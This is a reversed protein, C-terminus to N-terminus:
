ASRGLVTDYIRALEEAQDQYRPLRDKFPNTYTELMDKRDLMAEIARQLPEPEDIIPILSGNVGEVIEEAQGGPATSIVWVDRSLAERVTLGYSERWQSPFLLIDIGDYFDDLEAQTYAPITKVTGRVLWSSVDISPFGLNLTNDVLILEWDDRATKELAQRILSYGKVDVAGGVFGFRLKSGPDRKRRPRSPWTFGNKNIAIRDEPVGNRVHLAKHEESPSLIAHAGSLAQRMLRRRDGLYIDHSSREERTALQDRDLHYRGDDKSIFLQDTLWWCDHLSIVYPIGLDQCARAMGTGLEQIAHFHVLDAGWSGIWRQLQRAVSLNDAGSHRGAVVSFVDTGQIRYRLAGDPVDELIPRTTLVSSEYGFRALEPIVAEVVITAGGFTRPAMYVNVHVVRPAASAFVPPSGFIPEAQREQIREPAYLAYADSRAQEGMAERRTRDASLALLANRWDEPTRALMGNEGHRIVGAYPATPSCVSPVGLVAAELFKINSKCDNFVSLELPALAIDATALLAMYAEYSMQRKRRIRSEFRAFDKSLGLPGIILLELRPEADMAALLGAEAERFDIDHTRSGSGYCILISESAPPSPLREVREAIAITERDLANELIAVDRIGMRRMQGALAETSAIGRGCARLAKLFLTTGRLYGRKEGPTLTALNSNLQCSRRDFILDDVEWRPSLGVRKAQAILSLVPTFGPTRYFVVETAIQLESLALGTDRWDVVQVSWGLNRLFEAKQNVRYKVCQPVVVDAIILFHPRLMGRAAPVPKQFFASVAKTAGFLPDHAITQYRAIKRTERASRVFRRAAKSLGESEISVSIEDWAEDFPTGWPLRKLTLARVWRLPELIRWSLSGRMLRMQRRAITLEAQLTDARITALRASAALSEEHM